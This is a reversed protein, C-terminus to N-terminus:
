INSVLYNVFLCFWTACLTIWIFGAIVRSYKQGDGVIKNFGYCAIVALLCFTTILWIVANEISM